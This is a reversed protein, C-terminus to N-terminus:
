NAYTQTFGGNNEIWEGLRSEIYIAFWDCINVIVQPIDKNLCEISLKGCFAMFVYVKHWDVGNDFIRNDVLTM